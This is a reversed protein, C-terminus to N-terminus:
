PEEAVELHVSSFGSSVWRLEGTVAHLDKRLMEETVVEETLEVAGDPDKKSYLWAGSCKGLNRLYQYEKPLSDVCARLAESAKEAKQIAHQTAGEGSM